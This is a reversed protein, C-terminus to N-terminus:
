VEGREQQSCVVALALNRVTPEWAVSPYHIAIRRQWSVPPFRAALGNHTKLFLLDMLLRVTQLLLSSLFCCCCCCGFVLHSSPYLSSPLTWLIFHFFFIKYYYLCVPIFEYVAVFCSRCCHCSSLVDFSLSSSSSPSPTPITFYSSSSLRTTTCLDRVYIYISLSCEGFTNHRCGNSRTLCSLDVPTDSSSQQFLVRITWRINM